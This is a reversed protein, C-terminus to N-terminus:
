AVLAQDSVANEPISAMARLEAMKGRFYNGDVGSGAKDPRRRKNTYQHIVWDWGEIGKRPRAHRGTYGSVMWLPCQSLVLTKRLRFKWFNPGTYVMPWIGLEDKITGVFAECFAIIEHSTIKAKTARKDWEIDLCPPLMGPLVERGYNDLLWQAENIGDKEIGTAGSSTRRSVRAFHYASWIKGAEIAKTRNGKGYKESDHFRPDRYGNGDSDRGGETAKIIVFPTDDYEDFDFNGQHTAIDVGLVRKYEAFASRHLAASIVPPKPRGVVDTGSNQRQCWEVYEQMLARFAHGLAPDAPRDSRFFDAGFRLLEALSHVGVSDGHMRTPDILAAM